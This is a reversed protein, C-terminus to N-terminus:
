DERGRVRENVLGETAAEMRASFCLIVHSQIRVAKANAPSQTTDFARTMQSTSRSIAAAPASNRHTAM